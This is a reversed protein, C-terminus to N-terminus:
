SDMPTMSCFVLATVFHFIGPWMLAWASANSSAPWRRKAADSWGPRNVTTSVCDLQTTAVSGQM